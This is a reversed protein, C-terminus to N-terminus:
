NKLSIVQSCINIDRVDNPLFMSRLSDQRADVTTIRINSIDIQPKPVLPSVIEISLSPKQWGWYAVPFSWTNGYSPLSVPLSSLANDVYVFVRPTKGILPIFEYKNTYNYSINVEAVKLECDIKSHVLNSGNIQVPFKKFDASNKELDNRDLKSANIEWIQAYDAHKVPKYSALVEKYFSWSNSLLWGHFDTFDFNRSSIQVFKPKRQKFENTYKLRNEPGLAHIIYEFGSPNFNGYYLNLLGTYTAWVDSGDWEKKDFKLSNDKLNSTEDKLAEVVINLNKRNTDLGFIVPAKFDNTWHTIGGLVNLISEQVIKTNTSNSLIFLGDGLYEAFSSHGSATLKVKKGYLKPNYKLNTQLYAQHAFGHKFKVDNQLCIPIDLSDYKSTRMREIRVVGERTDKYPKIKSNQIAVYRVDGPGSFIESVTDRVGGVIIKDGPLVLYRSPVRLAILSQPFQSVGDELYPLFSTKEISFARHMDATGDLLRIKKPLKNFEIEGTISLAGDEIGSVIVKSIVSSNSYTLEGVRGVLETMGDKISPTSIKYSTNIGNYFFANKYKGFIPELNAVFLKGHVPNKNVYNILTRQKADYFAASDNNVSGIQQIGNALVEEHNFVMNSPTREVTSLESLHVGSFEQSFYTGVRKESLVIAISSCFVGICVGWFGMSVLSDIKKAWLKM